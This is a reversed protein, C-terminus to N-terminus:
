FKIVENYITTGGIEVFSFLFLRVVYATRSVYIM